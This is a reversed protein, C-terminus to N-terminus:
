LEFLLACLDIPQCKLMIQIDIIKTGIKKAFYVGVESRMPEAIENKCFRKSLRVSVQLAADTRQLCRENFKPMELFTWLYAYANSIVFSTTTQSSKRLHKSMNMNIACRYPHYNGRTFPGPVDGGVGFVTLGAEALKGQQRLLVALNNMSQLTEPHNVGLHAESGALCRRHLAEAQRRPIAGTTPGWAQIRRRTGHPSPLFTFLPRTNPDIFFIGLVVTVM